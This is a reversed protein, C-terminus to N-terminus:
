PALLSGARWSCPQCLIHCATWARCALKAQVASSPRLKYTDRRVHFSTTGALIGHVLATSPWRLSGFTLPLRGWRWCCCSSCWSFAARQVARANGGIFRKIAFWGGMWKLGSGWEGQAHARGHALPEPANHVAAPVPRPVANHECGCAPTTASCAPVPAAAPWGPARPSSRLVSPICPTMDGHHRPTM